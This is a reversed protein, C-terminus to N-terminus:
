GWNRSREGVLMTLVSSKGKRKEVKLGIGCGVVCFDELSLASALSQARKGGSGGSVAAVGPLNYYDYAAHVHVPTLGSDVAYKM